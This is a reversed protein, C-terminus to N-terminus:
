GCCANEGLRYIENIDTSQVRDFYRARYILRHKDTANDDVFGTRNHLANNSIIGEGPKLRYRCIYENNQEFLNDVFATAKLVDADQKWEISRKRATYRMHLNGTQPDISFVPGSQEARVLVGKEINAPITMVDPQLLAAIMQPDKDRMLIYLM